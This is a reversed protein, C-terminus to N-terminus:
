RSIATNSINHYLKFIESFSLSGMNFVATRGALSESIAEQLEFQNSGTLVYLLETTKNNKIWENKKEDIVIKIYSLLSPAKQIEDIVLPCGYFNLFGKPDKIAYDRVSLDDLTIYKFKEDFLHRIMTSKGTQRAGYITLCAFEKSASIIEKELARNIYM